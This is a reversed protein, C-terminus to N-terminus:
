EQFKKATKKYDNQYSIVESDKLNNKNLHNLPCM